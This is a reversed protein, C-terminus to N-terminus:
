SSEEITSFDIGGPVENAGYSSESSTSVCLATIRTGFVRGRRISQNRVQPALEGRCFLTLNNPELTDVGVYRRTGCSLEWLLRGIHLGIRCLAVGGAAPETMSPVRIGLCAVRVCASSSVGSSIQDDALLDNMPVTIGAKMPMSLHLSLLSLCGDHHIQPLTRADLVYTNTSSDFLKVTLDRIMRIRRIIRFWM